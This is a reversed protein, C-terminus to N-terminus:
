ASTSERRFTPITWPRSASPPSSRPRLFSAAVARRRIRASERARDLRRADGRASTWWSSSWRRRGQPSSPRRPLTSLRSANRDSRTLAFSAGPPEQRLGKLECRGPRHIPEPSEVLLGACKWAGDDAPQLWLLSVRPEAPLPWGDLGLADLAAEFRADEGLIIPLAPVADLALEGDGERGAVHLRARSCVPRTSGAPPESRSEASSATPWTRREPSPRSRQTSRMGPSRRSRSSRRRRSRRVPSRLRAFRASPSTSAASISSASTSRSRSPPSSPSWSWRSARPARPTSAGRSSRCRTASSSRGAHGRALGLFRAQLPDNRFRDTETQGPTYGILHRELMRPDFLDQRRHLFTLHHETGYM